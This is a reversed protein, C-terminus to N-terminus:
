RHQVQVVNQKSVLRIGTPMLLRVRGDRRVRDGAHRAPCPRLLTEPDHVSRLAWPGELRRERPSEEKADFNRFYAQSRPLAGGEAAVLDRKFAVHMGQHRWNNGHTNPFALMQERWISAAAREELQANRHRRFADVLRGPLRLTREEGTKTPGWEIDYGTSVSRAITLTSGSIDPWRLGRLEGQRPGPTLAVDYLVERRTGRIVAILRAAEAEYLARMKQSRDKPRKVSTAPNSPLLEWAVAQNLAASLAAIIYSITSPELKDSRLRSVLHEVHARRLEAFMLESRKSALWEAFYDATYLKGPGITIPGSGDRDAIARVLMTAAGSRSKAYLTKRKPGATTQIYYRATWRGDKRKSIAGEGNYRYRGAM